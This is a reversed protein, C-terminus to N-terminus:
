TDNLNFEYITASFGQKFLAVICHITPIYFNERRSTTTWHHQEQSDDEARNCLMQVLLRLIVSKVRTLFM